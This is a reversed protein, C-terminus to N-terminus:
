AERSVSPQRFPIRAYSVPGCKESLDDLAPFDGPRDLGYATVIPKLEQTLFWESSVTYRRPIFYGGRRKDVKRVVHRLAARSPRGRVVVAIAKYLRNDPEHFCRGGVLYLDADPWHEEWGRSIDRALSDAVRQDYRPLDEGEGPARHRQGYKHNVHRTLLLGLM